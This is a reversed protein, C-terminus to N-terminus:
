RRGRRSSGDKVGGRGGEEETESDKGGEMLIILLLSFPLLLSSLFPAFSPSISRYHCIGQSIPLFLPPPLYPSGRGMGDGAKWESDERVEGCGSGRGVMLSRMGSYWAVGLVRSKCCSRKQKVWWSRAGNSGDPWSERCGHHRRDGAARLYQRGLM